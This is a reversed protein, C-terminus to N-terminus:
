SDPPKVYTFKDMVIRTLGAGYYDIVYDSGDSPTVVQTAILLIDVLQGLFFFGLTSFKLLGIAPYGLYFRDIGFMGLFISLLLSTEFSYGNTWRCPAEKLFGVVTGNYTMAKGDLGICSIEEAPMCQILVTRNERCGKASQTETDIEPEKCTYQGLLLSECRLTTTRSGTIQILSLLFLFLTESGTSKM